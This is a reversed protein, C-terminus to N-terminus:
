LKKTKKTTTTSCSLKFAFKRQTQRHPKISKPQNKKFPNTDCIKWKQGRGNTM